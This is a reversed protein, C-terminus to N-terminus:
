SMKIGFAENQITGHAGKSILENGMIPRFKQVLTEIEGRFSLKDFVGKYEGLSMHYAVM